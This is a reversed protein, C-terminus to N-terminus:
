DFRSDIRRLVTNFGIFLINSGNKEVKQPPVGQPMCSETIHDSDIDMDGGIKM